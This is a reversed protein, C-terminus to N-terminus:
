LICGFVSNPTTTTLIGFHASLLSRAWKSEVLHGINVVRLVKWRILVSYVARTGDVGVESDVLGVPGLRMVTDWWRAMELVRALRDYGRAQHRFPTRYCEAPTYQLLPLRYIYRPPLGSCFVLRQPSVADLKIGVRAFRNGRKQPWGVKRCDLPAHLTIPASYSPAYPYAETM